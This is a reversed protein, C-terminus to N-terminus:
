YKNEIKILLLKLIDYEGHEEIFDVLKYREYKLIKFLEESLLEM